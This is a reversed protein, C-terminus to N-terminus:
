ILKHIYKKILTINFYHMLALAILMVATNHFIEYFLKTLSDIEPWFSILFVTYGVNLLYYGILLLKNVALCLKKHGPILSNVFVNGNKYCIQGVVIITPTVTLFYAIYGIINLSM